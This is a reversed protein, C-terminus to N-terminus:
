GLTQDQFHQLIIHHHVSSLVEYTYSIIGARPILKEPVLAIFNDARRKTHSSSVIHVSTSTISGYLFQDGTFLHGHVCLSHKQLKTGSVRVQRNGVKWIM